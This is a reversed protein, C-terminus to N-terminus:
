KTQSPKEGCINLCVIIKKENSDNSEILFSAHLIFREYRLKCWMIQKSLATLNIWNWKVSKTSKTCDFWAVTVGAVSAVKSLYEWISKIQDM